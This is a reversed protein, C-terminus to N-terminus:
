EDLDRTLQRALAGSAFFLCTGLVILSIKIVAASKSSTATAQHTKTAMFDLGFLILPLVIFGLAVLRIVFTMAKRYPSM